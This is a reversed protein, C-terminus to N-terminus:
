GTAALAAFRLLMDLRAALAVLIVAVFLGTRLLQALAPAGAFLRNGAGTRAAARMPLVHFRSTFAVLIIVFGSQRTTHNGAFGGPSRQLM